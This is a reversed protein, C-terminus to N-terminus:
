TWTYRAPLMPSASALSDTAAAWFITSLTGLGGPRVTKTVPGDANIASVWMAPSRLRRSVVISVTQTMVIM